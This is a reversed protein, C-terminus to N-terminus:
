TREQLIANPLMASDTSSMRVADITSDPKVFPLLRAERGFLVNVHREPCRHWRRHMQPLDQVGSHLTCFATCPRARWIGSASTVPISGSRRVAETRLSECRTEENDAKERTYERYFAHFGSGHTPAFIAVSTYSRIYRVAIGNSSM